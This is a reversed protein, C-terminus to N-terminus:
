ECNRVRVEDDLHKAKSLAGARCESWFGELVGLLERTLIEIERLEKDMITGEETLRKLSAKAQEL